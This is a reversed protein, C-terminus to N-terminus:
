ADGKENAETAETAENAAAAEEAAKAAARAALIPENRAMWVPADVVTEPPAIGALKGAPITQRVRQLVGHEPITDALKGSRIDSLVGDVEDNSIRHFYRYNVQMCPAETCAALCEYDEITFMGDATTGGSRIDLTEELHELLEEGGNLQCSINTCVNIVYKGVPHTKFMEYFTCTGIVEAATVETLEAIHEMAENTVYGDQEQGLHLLPIVASKKRPYRSIIEHALELNDPTFRAM